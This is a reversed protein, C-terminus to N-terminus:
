LDFHVKMPGREPLQDESPPANVVSSVVQIRLGRVGNPDVVQGGLAVVRKQLMMKLYCEVHEPELSELEGEAVKQMLAATLPVTGAVALHDAAAAAAAGQEGAAWVGMTGVHKPLSVWARADGDNDIEPCGLFLHIAFPGNCAQKEVCINATWERYHVGDGPFIKRTPAALVLSAAEVAETDAADAEASRRNTDQTTPSVVGKLFLGAPNRTGYLRNVARKVGSQMEEGLALPGGALEPYTYGFRTHDRIGDSTWFTGDDNSFFPTLATNADQIEGLRTTYSPRSARQPTVWSEPYLAQWIAFIRDVMCHHLWFLPDFAAYPPFAMHGDYGGSLLHITDHLSELSEYSGNPLRPSWMGDSMSTYNGYYALLNYLRQSHSVRNGDLYNAM